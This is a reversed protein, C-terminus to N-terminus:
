NGAFSMNVTAGYQTWEAQQQPSASNLIQLASDMFDGFKSPISAEKGHAIEYLAKQLPMLDLSLDMRDAPSKSQIYEQLVGLLGQAEKESVQASQSAQQQVQTTQVGPTTPESAHAQGPAAFAGALTTALAAAQGVKGLKAKAGKLFDGIGENTQASKSLKIRRLAADLKEFRDIQEASNHSPQNGEQISFRNWREMILKMDNKNKM